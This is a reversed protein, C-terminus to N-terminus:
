PKRPSKKEKFKHLHSDLLRVNMVFSPNFEFQGLIIAMIVQLEHFHLHESTLSTTGKTRLSSCICRLTSSVFPSNSTTGKTRLSSCIYTNGYDDHKRRKRLNILQM